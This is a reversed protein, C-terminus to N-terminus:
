AYPFEVIRDIGARFARLLESGLDSRHGEYFDFAGELDGEVKDLLRVTM